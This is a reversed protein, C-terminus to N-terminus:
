PQLKTPSIARDMWLLPWRPTRNMAGVLRAPLRPGRPDNATLVEGWGDRRRDAGLVLGADGDRERLEATASPQSIWSDGNGEQPTVPHHRRRLGLSGAHCGFEGAVVEDPTEGVNRVPGPDSLLHTVLTRDLGVKGDLNM